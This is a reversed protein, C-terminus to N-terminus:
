RPRLETGALLDHPGRRGALIWLPALPACAILVLWRVTAALWGAHHGNHASAVRLRLLRHSLPAGSGVTPAILILLVALALVLVGALGGLFLLLFPGQDQSQRLAQALDVARALGGPRELSRLLGGLPPSQGPVLIPLGARDLVAGAKTLGAAWGAVLLGFGMTAGMGVALVGDFVGAVLRKLMYQPRTPFLDSRPELAFDPENHSTAKGSRYVDGREAAPPLVPMPAPTDDGQVAPMQSSASPQVSPVPFAASSSRHAIAAVISPDMPRAASRMPRMQPTIMGAFASPPMEETPKRQYLAPRPPESEHIVEEEGHADVVLVVPGCVVVDGDHLASIRAIRTSNLMTGNASGLDEVTAAGDPAVSFRAHRRSIRADDVLMRCDAERGILWVGPPLVWTGTPGTLRFTM